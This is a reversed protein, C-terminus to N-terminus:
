RQLNDQIVIEIRISEQSADIQRQDSRARLVRLASRVVHGLNQTIVADFSGDLLAARADATLEHAIVPVTGALEHRRLANLLAAHETAISYVAVIDRYTTLANGVVREIVAPDDHGEISPLPRLEPYSAALVQDFGLRREVSDRAHTSGVLVLVSGEAPRAFRGLLSGATRGAAVNDVGVFHDRTTSPLDSVLAIVPIGARKLRTVADRVQPTEPAVLAVGETDAENLEGLRRALDHPDGAVYSEVRVHTRDLRAVSAIEALADALAGLFQGRRDPLLFVLRYQRKRALNAASVDRVYGLSEVANHVRAITTDRVGPRENLVRDVTALSVGAAKAVDNVTPRDAVTSDM